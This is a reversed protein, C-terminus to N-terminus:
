SIADQIVKEEEVDPAYKALIPHERWRKLEDRITNRTIRSGRTVEREPIPDGHINRETELIEKERRELWELAETITGWQPKAGNSNKTIIIADPVNQAPRLSTPVALPPDMLNGNSRLIIPPLRDEKLIGNQYTFCTFDDDHEDYGLSKKIHIQTDTVMYRADDMMWEPLVGRDVLLRKLEEKDIVQEPGQPGMPGFQGQAVGAASSEPTEDPSPIMETNPKGGPSAKTKGAPVGSYLPYFADVWAKAVIAANMDEEIDQTDYGFQTEDDAEANIHRETVTIFEGPGKGKAKLHQIESESATGLAGSSIPWFERADVGFTLALTSVYQDIVTKRDFSEPITSFGVFDIGVTTTPQSGLLWLVQPFTLSKDKERQIEWLKLADLFEQMTLGTVAAVGEPPLNSLKEEDYDHLGILLKVARLARDVACFGIGLNRERPSPLSTFHIYQGELFDEIQGTTESAYIMPKDKNGTLFCALTDIHGFGAIRGTQSNGERPTEWFVGRNTTHWDNATTGIFGGWDYGDMHAATALIHALNKAKLRRGTVQWKLASYKAVMSYIAGAMIPEYMWVKSLYEDRYPDEYPPIQEINMKVFSRLSSYASYYALNHTTSRIDLQSEPKKPGGQKEVYDSPTIGAERMADLRKGVEELNPAGRAASVGVQVGRQIRQFINM